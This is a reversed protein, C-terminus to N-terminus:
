GFPGRCVTPIFPYANICRRCFWGDSCDSHSGCNRDCTLWENLQPLLRRKLGSLELDVEIALVQRMFFQSMNITITMLLISIVFSLKFRAM